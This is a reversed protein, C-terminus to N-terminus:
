ECPTGKGQFALTKYKPTVKGNAGANPFDALTKNAYDLRKVWWMDCQQLKQTFTGVQFSDIWINVTATSDGYGKDDWYHVGIRYLVNEPAAMNLNEPGWGDTDDLALFPDDSPSTSSGWAPQSEFWYCDFLKAFWPDPSGDNDEDYQCACPKGNCLTLPNTCLNAKEADPHAFHLDLDAGASPGTDTKNTDGPTDWLLEVHLGTDPIVQVTFDAPGCGDKGDSDKVELRFTYVGVVNLQVKPGNPTNTTTGYTVKAAADSPFFAYGVAGPPQKLVTWKYTLTKGSKVLSGSGDLHIVSQPPVEEGEACTVIPTACDTTVGTCSLAVTKQPQLTNDVFTLNAKYPAPGAGPPTCSIPVTVTQNTHVTLPTAGSPATGLLIATPDFFYAKDVDDALTFKDLILDQSGCNKLAIGKTAAAGVLVGGFALEKEPTIKICAVQQNAKLTVIAEPTKADNSVFVLQGGHGVTDLGHYTLTMSKTAGPTITWAPNLAIPQASGDLKVGDDTQLSFFKPAVQAFQLSSIVLDGDGLNSVTVSSTAEVNLPVTGFDVGPPDVKIAPNGVKAALKIVFPTVKPANGAQAVTDIHNITLTANRGGNDAPKHYVIRLTQKNSHKASACTTDFSPDAPILTPWTAGKCPVWNPTASTGDDYLCDFAPQAGDNSGNPATYSFAVSDIAIELSSFGSAINTLVFDSNAAVALTQGTKLQQSALAVALVGARDAGLNGSAGACNNVPGTADSDSNTTGNSCAALALSLVVLCSQLPFRLNM